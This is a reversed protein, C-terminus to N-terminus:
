HPGQAYFVFYDGANFTNDGGDFMLIPIETLDDHRVIGNAEPLMGGGNGFLAIQSSPWNGGGIGLVTFDEYTVKFMGTESVAIKYWNGSALVSHAAYSKTRNPVRKTNLGKISIDASILKEYSNTGVKRIPVFTIVMYNRKKEVVSKVNIKLKNSEFLSPILSAEHTTMKEYQEGSISVEYNDYFVDIPIKEFYSPLEQIESSAIAGNFYLLEIKNEDSYEYSLTESWPITVKKQFNQAQIDIFQFLVISFLGIIVWSFKNM